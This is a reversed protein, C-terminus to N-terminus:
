PKKPRLTPLKEIAAKRTALQVHTYRDNVKKSAHGILQMRIEQSVGLEALHTNFSHRLAHFGVAHVKRGRPGGALKTAYQVGAADIIDRFTLSLGTKGGVRKKRLTPFLFGSSKGHKSVIDIVARHIPATIEKEDDTSKQKGPRYTVTGAELDFNEFRLQVLSGIRDGIYYGCLILESWEQDPARGLILEIEDLTFARKINKGKAAKVLSVAKARNHKVYGQDLARTLVSRLAKLVLNVSAPAEGEAILFDRFKQIDSDSLHAINKDAKPGLTDLFEDKLREYRKATGDARSVKIDQIWGGFWSRITHNVMPDGGARQVITNVVERAQEEALEGKRAKLAAQEWEVAIAQAQIRDTQKTSNQLREGNPGRYCAIYYQSRKKDRFISAM